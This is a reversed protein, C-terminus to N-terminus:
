AIELALRVVDLKDCLKEALDLDYTNIAKQIDKSHDRYDIGQNFQKFATNIGDWVFDFIGKDKIVINSLVRYEIGGVKGFDKYRFDGARGYLLRRKRDDDLFLLPLGLNVDLIRILRMGEIIDCNPWSFHLHLGACRDNTSKFDPKPAPEGQLWACFSINCGAERAEDSDLESDQFTGNTCCKLKLEEPLRKTGEEIVFQINKWMEERSRLDVPPVNFEALVGDHQIAHGNESVPLPASKTGEIYPIASVFDGQENTVFMEFDSGVLVGSLNIKKM